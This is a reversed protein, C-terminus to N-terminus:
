AQRRFVRRMKLALGLDGTVRIRDEMFLMDANARGALEAFFDRAELCLRVDATEFDGRGADLRGIGGAAQAEGVAANGQLRCNLAM